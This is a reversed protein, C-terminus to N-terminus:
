PAELGREVLWGILAHTDVTITTFHAELPLENNTVEHAEYIRTAIDNGPRDRLEEILM